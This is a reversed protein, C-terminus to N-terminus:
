STNIDRHIRSGLTGVAESQGASSEAHPLRKLKADTLLLPDNGQTEAQSPSQQRREAAHVNSEGARPGTSYSNTTHFTIQNQHTQQTREDAQWRRSM